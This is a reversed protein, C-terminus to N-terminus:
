PAVLTYTVTTTYTGSAKGLLKAAEAATISYRVNVTRDIVPLINLMRQRTGALSLPATSEIVDGSEISVQLATVPISNSGNKLSSSGAQVFVDYPSTASISLHAPMVVQVGNKYDAASEFVLNVDNQNVVVSAMDAVNVVLTTLQSQSAYTASPEADFVEHNLNLTYTGKRLFNSRLVEKSLNYSMSVNSTNGVPVVIGGADTMTHYTTGALFEAPKLKPAALHTKVVTAPTRPDAGGQYGNSYTFYPTNSKTRVGANITSTISFNLSKAALVLNRYFDLRDVTFEINQAPTVSIFPEVNVSISTAIPTISGLSIGTLNFKLKNTYTGAKWAFLKLNPISYRVNLLGAALLGLLSSYIPAFTTSLIAESGPAVGSLNLQQGGSGVAIAKFLNANLTSTTTGIKFYTDSTAINITPAVSLVSAYQVSQHDVYMTGQGVNSQNIYFNIQAKAPFAVLVM